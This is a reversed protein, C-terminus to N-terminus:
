PAPRPENTHRIQAAVAEVFADYERRDRRTLAVDLAAVGSGGLVFQAFEVKRYTAIMTWLSSIAFSVPVIMAWWLTASEFLGAFVIAVVIAGALFILGIHFDGYRIFLRNWEPYIGALPVVSQFEMSFRKKGAIVVRDPYLSFTRRGDFRKEFYTKLPQMPSETLIADM